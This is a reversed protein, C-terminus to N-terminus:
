RMRSMMTSSTPRMWESTLAALRNKRSIEERYSRPDTITLELLAKVANPSIKPSGTTDAMISRNTCRGVDQRQLSLRITEFVLVQSFGSSLTSL